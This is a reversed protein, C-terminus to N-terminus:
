GCPPWRPSQTTISVKTAPLSSPRLVTRGTLEQYVELVQLLDTEKFRIEGAPIIDDAPKLTMNDAAKDTANTSSTRATPANTRATAALNTAGPRFATAPPVLPKPTAPAAANTAAAAPSATNTNAVFIAPVNTAPVDAAAAANTAAAPPPPALATVTPVKIGPPIPAAPEPANTKVSPVAATPSADPTASPIVALPLTNTPVTTTESAKVSANTLPTLVGPPLTARVPRAPRAPKNTGPPFKAADDEYARDLARRLLEDRNTTTASTAPPNQALAGATFVALLLLTSITKVTPRLEPQLRLRRQFHGPFNM